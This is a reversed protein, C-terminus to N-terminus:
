GGLARLAKKADQHQPDLRLAAQYERKAIGKDGKKDAILGIRYHAQAVPPGLPNPAAIYRRLSQEGRDLNLGSISATRGYAYLATGDSPRAKLREDLLAFSKDYQKNSTYFSAASSYSASSDPYSSVLSNVERELCAQDKSDSCIRMWALSGRYGSRKRIENAMTRAKDKGGGLFGPARMYFLIMDDRADLNNPDLALAKEWAGQTKGALFPLKFKSAHQAQLGYARGLWDYAVSSRPDMDVSRELWDVGKKPDNQELAIQGLYLAAVPDRQSVPELVAKAENYKRADMLSKARETPTQASLSATAFLLAAAILKTPM